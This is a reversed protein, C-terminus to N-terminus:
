DIASAFLCKLYEGEPFEPRVPHDVAHGTRAQTWLPRGAAAAAKFVSEFFLDPQVRSSCSALVLLGTPALVDLALHTLREYAALAGDIEAASKAFAPPDVIVLDFAEGAASLEGLIEFADGARLHHEAAAVAPLDRNLEFNLRAMALAPESLELSTVAAAGGAAAALSFGGTYAFVDLVRRGAALRRVRQRNERHDFFFGTKHGQVIDAALRLGHEHFEVPQVPPRGGLHAGDYLGTGAPLQQSVHRSLRLLWSEAPQAAALLPLIVELHPLWAASYLKIVQAPGYRDVVLGPLGDGEGYILRYGTTGAPELEARRAVAERIRAAFWAEDIPTPDGQHLIRVRIPSDPDYLGIALFRRKRDFIVALDGPRGEGSQDTISGDFLWPHGARLQREAPPTVKLALRKEAPPPIAPLNFEVSM